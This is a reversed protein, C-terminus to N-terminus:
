CPTNRSFSELHNIRLVVGPLDPHLPPMERRAWKLYELEILRWIPALARM